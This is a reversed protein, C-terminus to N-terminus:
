LPDPIEYGRRRPRELYTSAEEDGVFTEKVPDWVLKRGVERAINGLHCVTISRHGIEVDAIPRGRTKICALWDGIHFKAQWGPGEWQERKQAPPPDSAIEAPSSKFTNRNVYMKGTEGLFIAGGMPLPMTEGEFDVGGASGPVLALKLIVGSAYRMHVDGHPGEIVPWIEVPGTEDAGLAWQVQDIGHAGWNTMEGGSYDRCGMWGFQLGGNYPKLKTRNCWMDWDLGEPLPQQPLNECHGPGTYNCALVTHVKGIKGTRVLDCPYRNYEMSRQQSGTQFVRGHKRVAKVLSRGEAITLTLPKEAYIDKGAQCAHICPLVRGHDTTPVIVADIDRSDLLKRYDQYVRWGRAMEGKEQIAEECRKLYCDCVAIIRGPAPTQSMLLRARGGSGIFGIRITENASTQGDLGLVSSPVIFPVALAGAAASRLFQRRSPKASSSM